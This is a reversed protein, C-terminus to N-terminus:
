AKFKLILYILLVPILIFGSIVITIQPGYIDAVYGAAPFGIVGSIGVVLAKFSGITARKKSELLDQFYTKQSPLIMYTFMVTLLLMFIALAMEKVFYVSVLTISWLFIGLIMFDIHKLKQKVSILGAFIGAVGIGSLIYGFNNANFGLGELFPMWVIGLAFSISFGWIIAAIMFLIIKENKIVYQWSEKLHVGYSLKSKVKKEYNFFLIIGALIMGIGAAWWISGMGFKTVLYVGVFGSLLSGVNGYMDEKAFVKDKDKFSDSIWAEFAGSIFAQATGLVGHLLLILYFNQTFFIGFLAVGTLLYGIITSNKRGYKDAVVGTPVEMLIGFLSVAGIIFGIQALSFGLSQFYPVKYIPYFLFLLAVFQSLYIRTKDNMNVVL